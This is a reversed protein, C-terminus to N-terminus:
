LLVAGTRNIIGRGIIILGGWDGPKRSGAAQDSTLVIPADERGRADIKAGRMVFLASGVRGKITTGAQITLTAGNAVHVFNTLTYTTDKYLTRSTTIDAGIDAAGPAIGGGCGPATPSADCPDDELGGCAALMGLSLVLATSISRTLSYKM